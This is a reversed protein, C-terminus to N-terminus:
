LSALMWVQRRLEPTREEIAADTLKMLMMMMVVTKDPLEQASVIHM